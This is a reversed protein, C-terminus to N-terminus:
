RFFAEAGVVTGDSLQSLWFALLLVVVLTVVAYALRRLRRRRIGSRDAFVPAPPEDFRAV